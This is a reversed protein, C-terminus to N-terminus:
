IIIVQRQARNKVVVYPSEIFVKVIFIEKSNNKSKKFVLKDAAHEKISEVVLSAASEAGPVIIGASWLLDDLIVVQM